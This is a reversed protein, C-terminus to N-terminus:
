VLIFNSINIIENQQIFYYLINVWDTITMLSDSRMSKEFYDLTDVVYWKNAVVRCIM